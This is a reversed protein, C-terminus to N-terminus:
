SVFGSFDEHLTLSIGAGTLLIKKLSLKDHNMRLAKKTSSDLMACSYNVRLCHLGLNRATMM